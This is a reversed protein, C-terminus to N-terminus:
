SQDNPAAPGSSLFRALEEAMLTKLRDPRLIEIEGRWTFLHWCLELLGGTRLRLLLGGDPQPEFTQSPHFLFSQALDASGPRVRLVIDEAPEQFVGFSQHAFADMDFGEPVQAPTELVEVGAM